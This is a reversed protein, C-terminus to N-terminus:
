AYSRKKETFNSTLLAINKSFVTSSNEVTNGSQAVTILKYRYIKGIKSLKMRKPVLQHRHM